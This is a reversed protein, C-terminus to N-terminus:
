TDFLGVLKQTTTGTLTNNEAYIGQLDMNHLKSPRILVWAVNYIIQVNVPMTQTLLAVHNKTPRFRM